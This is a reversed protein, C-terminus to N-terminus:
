KKELAIHFTSFQQRGRSGSIIDGVGVPDRADVFLLGWFAKGVAREVQDNDALGEKRVLKHVVRTPTYVIPAAPM